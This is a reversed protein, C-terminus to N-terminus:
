FDVSFFFGYSALLYYYAIKDFTRQLTSIIVGLSGTVGLNAESIVVREAQLDIPITWYLRLVGSVAYIPVAELTLFPLNSRIIYLKFPPQM